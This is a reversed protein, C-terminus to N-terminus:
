VTREPQTNGSKRRRGSLILEIALPLLGSALGATIGSFFLLSQGASEGDISVFSARARISRQSDWFLTGPEDLQPSAYDVRFYQPPVVLRLTQRAVAEEPPDICEGSSLISIDISEADEAREINGLQPCWLPRLLTPAELIYRANERAIAPARMQVRFAAQAIYRGDRHVVAEPPFHIVVLQLDYFKRYEPIPFDSPEEIIHGVEAEATKGPTGRIVEVDTAVAGGGLLLVVYPTHEPSSVIISLELEGSSSASGRIILRANTTTTADYPSLIRIRATDFPVENGANVRFNRELTPAGPLGSQYQFYAVVAAVASGILLVLGLTGKGSM